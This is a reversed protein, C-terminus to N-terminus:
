YVKNKLPKPELCFQTSPVSTEQLDGSGVYVFSGRSDVDLGVITCQNCSIFRCPCMMIVWLGYNVKPTM